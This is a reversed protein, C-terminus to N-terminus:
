GLVLWGDNEGLRRSEILTDAAEYSGLLRVLQTRTVAMFETRALPPRDEEGPDPDVMGVIHAVMFKPEGQAAGTEPDWPRTFNEPSAEMHAVTEQIQEAHSAESHSSFVQGWVTKGDVVRSIISTHIGTAAVHCQSGDSLPFVAPAPM